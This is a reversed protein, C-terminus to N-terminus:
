HHRLTCHRANESDRDLDSRSTRGGEKKEREPSGATSNPVCFLLACTFDSLRQKEKGSM